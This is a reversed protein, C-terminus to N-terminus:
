NGENKILKLRHILNELDDPLRSDFLMQKKTEPHIFGLTKAHLAQRPMMKLLEMALSTDSQNLGGLQRGRGGYTQDGFVPHGIHALHVRIQHTRGTELKLHILSTLSFKEKVEFHTVAEKGQKSVQMKRRDKVSRALLTEITGSKQKFTGWAVAAYQRTVTKEEFQKALVRHSNDDKAVVLLGSTDKDLRHVIGPRTIDNVTSLHSTHALLANVMTGTSHGYAPHVVMGAAKNVILLSDDEYVVDLPIEEPLIESPPPKPINIQIQESPQVIHRPKVIKGDVTVCGNEILKQIQTRSVQGVERALFTDLREKGKHKPVSIDIQREM